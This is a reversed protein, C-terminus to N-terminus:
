VSNKMFDNLAVPVKTIKYTNESDNLLELFDHKKEHIENNLSKQFQIFNQKSILRKEKGLIADLKIEKDVMDPKISKHLLVLFEPYSDIVADVKGHIIKDNIFLNSLLHNITELLINLQIDKPKEIEHLADNGLFRISHLRKSENLTLHGKQHLLNIRDELNGKKIKLHNCISEIIVRFGGAALIKSDSMLANVTEMYIDKILIPLHQTNLIEGKNLYPPFIFEDEYYDYEYDDIPKMMSNDGYTKLFSINNCGLCEIVCYRRTWQFFHDSEGGTRIEEYLNKHNRKGKCNACFYKESM